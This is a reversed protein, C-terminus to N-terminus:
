CAAVADVLLYPDLPMPLFEGIGEAHKRNEPLALFLIQVGPRKSKVMRTLAVGNLRGAGFDVRTVLVRVLCDEEEIADLAAMPDHFGVATVGAANLAAVALERTATDDHAVLVLAPM